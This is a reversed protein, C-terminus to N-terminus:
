RWAAGCLGHVAGLATSPQLRNIRFSIFFVLALTGLFLVIM